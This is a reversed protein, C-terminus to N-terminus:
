VRVQVSGSTLSLRGQELDNNAVQILQDAQLGSDAAVGTSISQYLTIGSAKHKYAFASIARKLECALQVAQAQSTEPLVVAFRDAAYRCVLDQDRLNLM